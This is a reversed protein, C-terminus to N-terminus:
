QAGAAQSGNVKPSLPLYPLGPSEQSPILTQPFSHLPGLVQPAATVELPPSLFDSGELGPPLHIAEEQAAASGPFPTSLIHRAQIHSRSTASLGSHQPQIPPARGPPRSAPSSTSVGGGQSFPRPRHQPNPSDPSDPAPSLLAPGWPRAPSHAWSHPSSSPAGNAKPTCTRGQGPAPSPGARGAVTQFRGQGSKPSEDAGGQPTAPESSGAERGDPHSVCRPGPMGCLWTGQSFDRERTRSETGSERGGPHVGQQASQGFPPWCTSVRGASAGPAGDPGARRAPRVGARAMRRGNARRARPRGAPQWLGGCRAHTVECHNEGTSPTDKGLCPPAKCQSRRSQM